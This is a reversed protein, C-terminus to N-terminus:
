SPSRPSPPTTRPAPPEVATRRGHRHLLRDVVREVALDADASQERVGRVMESAVSDSSTRILAPLDIEQVVWRVLAVIDARAIVRDLDLRDVARDLDVRGVVDDLDVRGLVREIDVRDVARDLDVRAVVDDLDVRDLVRAIDVKEVLADLDLGAAIAEVDIREVVAELDVRAVVADVDLAAALRDIDVFELVLATLDLRSLAERVVTPLLADAVGGVVGAVAQGASAAMRAGQEVVARSLRHRGPRFRRSAARPARGYVAVLYRALAAAIALVARTAAALESASVRQTGEWAPPAPLEIVEAVPSGGASPVGPGSPTVAVAFSRGIRAEDRGGWTIRTGADPEARDAARM